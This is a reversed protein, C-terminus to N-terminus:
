EDEKYEGEYYLESECSPCLDINLDGNVIHMEFINKCKSCIVAVKKSM